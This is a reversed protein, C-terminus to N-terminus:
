VDRWLTIRCATVGRGNYAVLGIGPGNGLWSRGPMMPPGKWCKLASGMVWTVRVARLVWVKESDTM